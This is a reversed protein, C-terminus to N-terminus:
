GLEDRSHLVSGQTPWFMGTKRVGSCLSRCPRTACAIPWTRMPLKWAERLSLVRMQLFSLVVRGECQPRLQQM